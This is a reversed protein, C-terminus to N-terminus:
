HEGGKALIEILLEFVKTLKQLKATEVYENVKHAMVGEGAGLTLCSPKDFTSWLMQTDIYGSSKIDRFGGSLYQRIAKKIPLLKKKYTTWSSFDHRIKTNVLTVSEQELLNEVIKIVSKADLESTTPRIDLVFEAIDAINNGERGLILQGKDDSGLNLGGQLFALNCTTYGLETNKYKTRLIQTLHEVIYASKLIANQGTWPKAAHGGQSRITCTIEILGRCGYGIKLDGGDASIIYKPKIKTKCKSIFKKMGLFDYEEDVYLLIMLGKTSSFKELSTILAALNGKMDTSGLGYIKGDKTIPKFPNTIWGQKPQVTDLHGCFLVETPYNDKIILNFRSGQVRQKKITLWKFQQLYRYLFEALKQENCNRGVYSPISILTQALDITKNKSM